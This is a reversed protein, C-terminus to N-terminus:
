TKSKLSCASCTLALRIDVSFVSRVYTNSRKIESLTAEMCEMIAAQIEKMHPSLPQYM